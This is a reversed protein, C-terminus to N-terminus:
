DWHSLGQFHHGFHHRWTSVFEPFNFLGYSTHDSTVYITAVAAAGIMFGLLFM